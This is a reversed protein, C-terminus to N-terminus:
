ALVELKCAALAGVQVGAISTAAGDGEVVQSGGADRPLRHAAVARRVDLLPDTVGLERRGLAVNPLTPQHSSGAPLPDKWDQRGQQQTALITAVFLSTATDITPEAGKVM